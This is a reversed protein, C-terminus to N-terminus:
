ASVEDDEVDIDVRRNQHHHNAFHWAVFELLVELEREFLGETQGIGNIVVQAAPLATVGFIPFPAAGDRDVISDDKRERTQGFERVLCEDEDGGHIQPHHCVYCRDVDRLGAAIRVVEREAFLEAGAAGDLQM